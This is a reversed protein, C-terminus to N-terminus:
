GAPRMARWAEEEEERELAMLYEWEDFVRPIEARIAGRLMHNPEVDAIKEGRIVREAQSRIRDSARGYNGPQWRRSDNLKLEFKGRGIRSSNIVPEKLATRLNVPEGHLISRIALGVVKAMVPPLADAIMGLIGHKEALFKWEEPFGQAVALVETTIFPIFKGDGIEPDGVTPLREAVKAPNFGADLWAQRGEKSKEERLLTPLMSKESGERATKWDDAWHNFVRQPHTPPVDRIPKRQRLVLPGLVNLVTRMIPDLASPNQFVGHIDNHIGVIFEHERSHPLGFNKPDLAFPFIRYDYEKKLRGIVGAFELEDATQRQGKDYQLMFSRPSVIDLVRFIEDFLDPKDVSANGPACPLGAVLLDIGEYHKLAPESMESIDSHIVNWTPWNQKLTKARDGSKEILAVHEFGASMLGIASGGAGAFLELVELPKRPARPITRAETTALYGIANHLDSAFYSPPATQFGFGGNHSFAGAALRQLAKIASGLKAAEGGTAGIFDGNGIAGTVATLIRRALAAIANFSENYQTSLEFPVDNGDEYPDLACRSAFEDLAEQLQDVLHEISSLRDTMLGQLFESRDHEAREKVEMSDRWHRKAVQKVDAVELHKNQRLYELARDQVHPSEAALLKVAELSLSNNPLSKKVDDPLSSLYSLVRVDELAPGATSALLSEIQSPTALGALDSIVGAAKLNLDVIEKTLKQLKAAALTIHQNNKAM